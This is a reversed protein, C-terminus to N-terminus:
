RRYRPDRYAMTQDVLTHGNRRWMGAQVQAVFVITRLCPEIMQVPTPREMIDLENSEFTLGFKGMHLSLDSLLRSLPQHLAVPKSSVQYNICTSTRDGITVTIFDQGTDKQDKFLRTFLMRLSKLLVIRDTSAWKNMLTVLPIFEM